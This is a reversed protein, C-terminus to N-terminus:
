EADEEDDVEAPEVTDEDIIIPPDEKLERWILYTAYAIAHISSAQARQQVPPAPEAEFEYEVDDGEPDLNTATGSVFPSVTFEDLEPEQPDAHDVWWLGDPTDVTPAVELWECKKTDGEYQAVKMSEISWGIETGDISEAKLAMVFSFTRDSEFDKPDEHLIFAVTRDPPLAQAASSAFVCTFLGILLSLTALRHM